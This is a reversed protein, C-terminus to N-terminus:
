DGRFKLYLHPESQCRRAMDELQNVYKIEESNISLKKLQELEILIRAMQLRNFITDGYLDANRLLIFHEDNIPMLRAVIGKPDLLAVIKGGSEDELYVDVGMTISM